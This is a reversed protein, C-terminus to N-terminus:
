KLKGAAPKIYKVVAIQGNMLRDSVDINNILM